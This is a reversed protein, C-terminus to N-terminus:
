LKVPKVLMNYLVSGACARDKCTYIIIIYTYYTPISGFLLDMSPAPLELLESSCLTTRVDYILCISSFTWAKKSFSFAHLDVM